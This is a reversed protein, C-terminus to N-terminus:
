QTRRLITLGNAEFHCHVTHRRAFIAADIGSRVAGALNTLRTEILEDPLLALYFVPSELDFEEIGANLRKRERETLLAAPRRASSSFAVLHVRRGSQTSFTSM